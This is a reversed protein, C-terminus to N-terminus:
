EEDDDNEQMEEQIKQTEIIESLIELWMKRVDNSTLDCDIVFEKVYDWSYINNM